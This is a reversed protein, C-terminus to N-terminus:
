NEGEPALFRGLEEKMRKYDPNIRIFGDFEFVETRRFEMPCDQAYLLVTTDPNNWKILDLVKLHDDVGNGILGVLVMNPKQEMIMQKAEEYSTCAKIEGLVVSSDKALDHAFRVMKEDSDLVLLKKKKSEEREELVEGALIEAFTLLEANTSPMQIVADFPAAEEGMCSGKANAGLLLVKTDPLEERLVDIIAGGAQSEHLFNDPMILIDPKHINAIDFVDSSCGALPLDELVSIGDIRKLLKKLIGVLMEDSDIVAVKVQASEEKAEEIRSNFADIFRDVTAKLKEIDGKAMVEDFLLSGEDIDEQTLTATNLMVKTQKHNARIYSLLELHENGQGTFDKDSIVIDPKEQDIKRIAEKISTTVGQEKSFVVGENDRFARMITTVQQDNDDIILVKVQKKTQNSDMLNQSSVGNREGTRGSVKSKRTSM